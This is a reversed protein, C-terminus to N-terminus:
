DEMKGQWGHFSNQTGHVSSRIWKGVMDYLVQTDVPKAIHGNMGAARVREVDEAFANATMAIIPITLADRRDLARIARAAEYGDMHPMQIDTIIMSYYEEPSAAMKEVAEVGDCAEEIVAGTDALLERAIERNLENDEVLLIRSGRLKGNDQDRDDTMSRGNRLHNLISCLESRFLPKALFATVGAAVAEEEIEEWDYATLIIVPVDRGVEQRIRRTAEVGDMGPMKWDMLVAHFGSGAAHAQTVRDVAEEGGTVYESEMGIEELTDVADQCTDEDDDVVLVRLGMLAEDLKEQEHEQLQFHLTVTFTSGKGWESDVYISGNMLDVINKTISMGLGTGEAKQAEATGAREFPDYIKDMFEKSMGPGTDSFIFQYSGYDRISSELEKIHIGIHGGPPTFKISNGVINLFIQRFRLADGIIGHHRFANLKTELTLNKAKVQPMLMSLLDRIEEGLNFPQSNLVMKGSEIKSMDLVDNILSLLHASSSSIKSLCYKVRERDGIHSAAIATMGVIANMPTRIDHSMRSLFESKAHNAANASNLASQLVQFRQEEAHKQEDIPRVMIIYIRDSGGENPVPIMQISVWHWQGDGLFFRSDISIEESTHADLAERGFRSLFLERDDPDAIEQIHNLIGTYTCVEEVPLIGNEAQYIVQYKDQDLNCSVILPYLRSVASILLRREQAREQEKEQAALKERTIDHFTAILIEKGEVDLTKEVLGGVWCNDEGDGLVRHSYSYRKGTECAKRFIQNMEERDDPDIFDDLLAGANDQYESIDEYKLLRIGEANMRLVRFRQGIAIQCVGEPISHYLHTIFNAHNEIIRRAKRASRLYIIALVVMSTIVFVLLVVTKVLIDNTQAVVASRPIISVLYWSDEGQLPVYCYTMQQDAYRLVAVGKSHELLVQRFTEVLEEENYGSVMDFLNRATKNSNTHSPRILIDGRSNVIYSFGADNYFSLTFQDSIERVKYEKVLCVPQGDRTYAKQFIDFVQMGTATSIHPEIIGAEQKWEGIASVANQDIERGELGPQGDQMYYLYIDSGARSFSSIIEQLEEETEASSNGVYAALSELQERDQQFKIDLSTRGQETAALISTVSKEWLQDSVNKMFLLTGLVVCIGMSFAALYVKGGRRM